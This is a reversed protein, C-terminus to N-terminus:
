EDILQYKRYPPNKALHASQARAQAVVYPPAYFREDLVNDIFIRQYTKGELTFCTDHYLMTAFLEPHQKSNGYTCRLKKTAPDATYLKGQLSEYKNPAYKYPM